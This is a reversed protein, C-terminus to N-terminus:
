PNGRENFEEIIRGLKKEVSVMPFNDKQQFYKAIHRQKEEPDRTFRDFWKHIDSITVPPLEPLLSIEPFEELTNILQEKPNKSFLRRFFGGSPLAEDYIVSVFFVFDPSKEFLQAEVCFEKLLWQILERTPADLKWESMYLRFKIAVCEMDKVTPAQLLTHLNLEDVRYRNPNLEVAKFLSTLLNIRAEDLNESKDIQTEKHYYREYATSIHEMIFRQFLGFPSQEEEGHIVYHQFKKSGRSKLFQTKFRSNQDARDCCYRDVKSLAVKQSVEQPLRWALVDESGENLYLGWSLERPAEAEEEFTLSRFAQPPQVAYDYKTEVFMSAQAFAEEITSGQGLNQYFRDAFDGAMQDNIPTSTAVVARVGQNLLLEVQGRTSCGNLFVLNLSDLSGLLKALGKAQAAHTGGEATNFLLAEQTAHGGYHFLVIDKRRRWAEVTDFIVDVTAHEIRDINCRDEIEYSILHQYLVASERTLAALYDRPVLLPNAFTLLIVPHNSM